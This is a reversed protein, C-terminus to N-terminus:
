SSHSVLDVSFFVVVLERLAVAVIENCCAVPFLSLSLVLFLFCEAFRCANYNLVFCSVLLSLFVVAILMSGLSLCNEQKCFLGRDSTFFELAM